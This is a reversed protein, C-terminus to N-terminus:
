CIDTRATVSFERFNEWRRIIAEYYRIGDSIIQKHDNSVMFFFFVNVFVKIIFLFSRVANLKRQWIIYCSLPLASLARINLPFFLYQFLWFNYEFPLFDLFRKM